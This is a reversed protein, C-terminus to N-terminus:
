IVEVVPMRWKQEVVEQKPGYLRLIVNFTGSQPTPLWNSEEGAGPSNAQMWLTLGGDADRQLQDRSSLCYRDLPNAVLQRDPLDYL